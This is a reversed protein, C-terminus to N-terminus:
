SSIENESWELTKLDEISKELCENCALYAYHTEQFPDLCDQYISKGCYRCIDHMM